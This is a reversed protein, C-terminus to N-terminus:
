GPEAHLGASEVQVENQRGAETLARKMLSEAMASRMINGFCVFLLSRVPAPARRQNPERIGLADLLFLKAYTGGANVGLNSVLSRQKLLFDPIYKRLIEKASTANAQEPGPRVRM